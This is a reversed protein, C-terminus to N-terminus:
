GSACWYMFAVTVCSDMCALARLEPRVTCACAFLDLVARQSCLTNRQLVAHHKLSHLKMESDIRYARAASYLGIRPLLMGRLSFFLARSAKLALLETKLRQPLGEEDSQRRTGM